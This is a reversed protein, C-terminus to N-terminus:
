KVIYDSEILGFFSSKGYDFVVLGVFIVGFRQFNPLEFVTIKPLKRFQGSIVKKFCSSFHMHAINSSSQFNQGNEPFTHDATPIQAMLEMGNIHREVKKVPMFFHMFISIFEVDHM